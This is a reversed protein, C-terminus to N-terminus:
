NSGGSLHVLVAMLEGRTAREIRSPKTLAIITRFKAIHLTQKDVLDAPLARKLAHLTKLARRSARRAQLLRWRMFELDNMDSVKPRKM